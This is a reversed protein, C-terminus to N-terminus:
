NRGNFLGRTQRRGNLITGIFTSRVFIDYLLISIFLTIACISTLKIAWHFPLEAFAIQLFIVLPLHILYLWYASDAIYRVKKSTRKFLQKCAGITLSILLWMMIAYSFIFSAKFLQYQSHALNGEFSSMVVTTVIATISLLVKGWSLHVFQEM